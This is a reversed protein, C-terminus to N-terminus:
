VVSVPQIRPINLLTSNPLPLLLVTYVVDPAQRTTVSQRWREFRRITGIQSTKASMLWRVSPRISLGVLRSLPKYLRTCAVLFPSLGLSKRNKGIAFAAKSTFSTFERFLRRRGCFHFNQMKFFM